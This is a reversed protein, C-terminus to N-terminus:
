GSEIIPKNEVIPKNDEKPRYLYAQERIAHIQGTIEANKLSLTYNFVTLKEGDDYGRYTGNINVVSDSIDRYNFKQLIEFQFQKPLKELSYLTQQCFIAFPLMVFLVVPIIKRM